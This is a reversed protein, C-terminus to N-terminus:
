PAIERALPMRRLRKGTLRFLANALAAGVPGLPPEGVPGPVDMGQLLHVEVKRPADQMQLMRYPGYITPTLAGDVVQMEEYLAASIGMHISGECQAIVQDPNVALGPDLVCTVKHIRLGTDELSVEFVQACPTGVDVSAALGMARGDRVTESYGSAEVAKKIVTKLRKGVPDNGIHRLRFDAANM